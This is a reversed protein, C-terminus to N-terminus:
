ASLRSHTHTHMHVHANTRERTHTCLASCSQHITSPSPPVSTACQRHVGATHAIARLLPTHTHTRTNTHMERPHAHTHAHTRALSHSQSLSVSPTHAHTRTHTHTRARSLSLALLFVKSKSRPFLPFTSAHFSNRWGSTFGLSTSSAGSSQSPRGRASVRNTRPVGNLKGGGGGCM